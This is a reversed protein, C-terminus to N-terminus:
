CRTISSSTPSRWGCRTQRPQPKVTALGLDKEADITTGEGGGNSPDVRIDTNLVVATFSPSVEWKHYLSVYHTPATTHTKTSDPTAAAASSAMGFAALACLIWGRLSRM